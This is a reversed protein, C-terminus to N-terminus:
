QGQAALAEKFAQLHNYSGELLNTYATRLDRRQTGALANQIDFIDTIEIEVGVQLADILSRNGQEILTDYLDQLEKNTFEGAAMGAAPDPLGYKTLMKLMSDMHRQESALINAFIAVGWNELMVLYVDHALKEEERMFILMQAEAESLAAGAASTPIGAGMIVTLACVLVAFLAMKSIVKEIKVLFGEKASKKRAV